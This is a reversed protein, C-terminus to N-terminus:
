KEKPYAMALFESIMKTPDAEIYPLTSNLSSWAGFEKIHYADFGYISHLHTARSKRLWHPHIRFPYDNIFQRTKPDQVRIHITVTRLYNGGSTRSFTFLKERKLSNIYALVFRIMDKEGHSGFLPVIRFPRKSSKLNPLEALIVGKGDITEAKFSEKTLDLVESIRGATLYLCYFLARHSPNDYRLGTRYYWPIDKIVEPILKQKRKIPKRGGREM